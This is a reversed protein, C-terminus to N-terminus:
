GQTLEKEFYVLPKRAQNGDVPRCYYLGNLYHSIVLKQNPHIREYVIQGIKYKGEMPPYSISTIKIKESSKM